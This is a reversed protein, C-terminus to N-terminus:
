AAATQAQSKVVEMGDSLKVALSNPCSTAVTSAALATTNSLCGKSRVTRHRVTAFSSEIINTVPIFIATGRTGAAIQNIAAYPTVM